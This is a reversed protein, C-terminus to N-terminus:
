GREFFIELTGVAIYYLTQPVKAIIGWAQSSGALATAVATAAMFNIILLPQHWGLSMLAAEAENDRKSM